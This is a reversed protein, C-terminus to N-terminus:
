GHLHPGFGVALELPWQIFLGQSPTRGEVWAPLRGIEDAAWCNFWEYPDEPSFLLITRSSPVSFSCSKIDSSPMTYVLYLNWLSFHMNNVLGYIYVHVTYIDIALGKKSSDPNLRGRVWDELSWEPPLTSPIGLFATVLCRLGLWVPWWPAQTVALGSSCSKRPCTASRSLSSPLSCTSLCPPLRALM